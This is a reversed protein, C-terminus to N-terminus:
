LDHHLKESLKDLAGMKLSLHKGNKRDAGNKNTSRIRRTAWDTKVTLMQMMTQPYSHMFAGILTETMKTTIALGRLEENWMIGNEQILVENSKPHLRGEM